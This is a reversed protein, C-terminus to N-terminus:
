KLLSVMDFKTFGEFWDREVKLIGYYHLFESIEINPGDVISNLIKQIEIREKLKTTENKTLSNKRTM